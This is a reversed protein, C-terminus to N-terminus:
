VKNRTSKKPPKAYKMSGKYWFSVWSALKVSSKGKTESCNQHYALFLNRCSLPLSSKIADNSLEEASPVMEDYFSGSIPLGVLLYLDWLSISVKGISTHLTNTTPCWCECFVRIMSAHHDYSFLSTFIAEYLKCGKLFPRHRGM